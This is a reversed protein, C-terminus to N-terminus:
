AEDVLIVGGKPTTLRKPLIAQYDPSNYWEKAKAITEFEIAVVATPSWCGDMVEINGGGGLLKGSFKTLSGGALQQYEGFGAPDSISDISAFALSCSTIEENQIIKVGRLTHGRPQGM